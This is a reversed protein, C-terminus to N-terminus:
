AAEDDMYLSTLFRKVAIGQGIRNSLKLPLWFTVSRRRIQDM